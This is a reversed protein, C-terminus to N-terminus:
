GIPIRKELKIAVIVVIATTLLAKWDMAKEKFPSPKAHNYRHTPNTLVRFRFIDFIGSKVV